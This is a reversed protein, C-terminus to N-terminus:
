FLVHMLLKLRDSKLLMDSYNAEISKRKIICIFASIEKVMYVNALVGSESWPRVLDTLFLSFM